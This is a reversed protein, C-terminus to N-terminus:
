FAFVFMLQRGSLTAYAAFEEYYRLQVSRVRAASSRGWHVLSPPESPWLGTSSTVSKVGGAAINVGGSAIRRLPALQPARHVRTLASPMEGSDARSMFNM